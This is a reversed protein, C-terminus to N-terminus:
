FKSSKSIIRKREKPGPTVEQNYTALRLLMRTSTSREVEKEGKGKRRQRKRDRSIGRKKPDAHTLQNYPKLCSLMRKVKKRPQKPSPNTQPHSPPPQQTQAVPNATGAQIKRQERKYTVIAHAM